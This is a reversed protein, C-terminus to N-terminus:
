SRDYQFSSMQQSLVLFVEQVLDAADEPQSGVRRAWYYIVPTYLQVFHDWADSADPERLRQLLSHSTTYM